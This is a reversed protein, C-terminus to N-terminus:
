SREVKPLQAALVVAVAGMIVLAMMVKGCKGM